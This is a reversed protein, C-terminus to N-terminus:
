KTPFLRNSDIRAKPWAAFDKPYSKRVDGLMKRFTYAYSLASARDAYACGLASHCKPNNPELRVAKQLLKAANEYDRGNDLLTIAESYLRAANRHSEKAQPATRGDTSALILGCGALLFVLANRNLM